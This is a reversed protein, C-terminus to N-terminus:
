RGERGGVPLERDGNILVRRDGLPEALRLERGSACDDDNAPTGVRVHLVVQTATEEEVWVDFPDPNCVGFELQLTRDDPGLSVSHLGGTGIEDGCGAVVGLAVLALV